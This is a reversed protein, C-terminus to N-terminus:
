QSQQIELLFERIDERLRVRGNESDVIIFGFNELFRLVIFVREKNVGMKLSLEDVCHWEGDELLELVETPSREMVHREMPSLIM